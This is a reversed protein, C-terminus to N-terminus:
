RWFIRGHAIRYALSGPSACLQIGSVLFAIGLLSGGGLIVLLPVGIVGWNRDTHFLLLLFGPLSLFVMACGVAIPLFDGPGTAFRWKRWKM